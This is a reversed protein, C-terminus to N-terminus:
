NSYNVVPPAAPTVTTWGTKVSESVAQAYESAAQNNALAPKQTAAQALWKHYDEPSEVVVDAQM